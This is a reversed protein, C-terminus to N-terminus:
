PTDDDTGGPTTPQGGGFQRPGAPLPTRPQLLEAPQNSEGAQRRAERIRNLLSERQSSTQPQTGVPAPPPTLAPAPVRSGPQVPPPAVSTKPRANSFVVLIRKTGRAELEVQDDAIKTLRFEGIAEGLGFWRPKSNAVSLDQILAKGGQGDLFIGYMAANLVAPPLVDASPASPRKRDEQFLNHDLIFDVAEAGSKPSPEAASSADTQTTKELNQPRPAETGRVDSWVQYIRTGFFFCVGVLILNLVNLKRILM